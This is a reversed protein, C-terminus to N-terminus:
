KPDLPAVRPDHARAKAQRCNQALLTDFSPAVFDRTSRSPGLREVDHGRERGRDKSVCAERAIVM